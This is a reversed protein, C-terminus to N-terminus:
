KKTVLREITASKAASGSSSGFYYSIIGVEAASLIGILVNVLEKASESVGFKFVYGLVVFYGFTYLYALVTPTKDRVAIERARASARDEAAIKELDINMQQMKAAFDNEAQKLKLLTDPNNSAAIANAIETESGNPKGLVAQSVANVAMGALPGGLATAITPAVTGVISRWDISAM